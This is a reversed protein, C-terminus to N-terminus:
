RSSSSSSSSSRSGGWALLVEAVEAGPLRHPLVGLLGDQRDVEHLHLRYVIYTHTYIYVYVYIFVYM